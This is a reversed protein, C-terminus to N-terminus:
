LQFGNTAVVIKRQFNEVLALLKSELKLWDKGALIREM